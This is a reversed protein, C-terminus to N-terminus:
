QEKEVDSLIYFMNINYTNYIKEGNKDIRRIFINASIKFFTNVVPSFLPIIFRYNLYTNYTISLLPIKHM